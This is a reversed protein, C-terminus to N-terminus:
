HVFQSLVHLIKRLLASNSGRYLMEQIIKAAELCDIKILGFNNDRDILIGLGDLIDWPKAKFMSCNGLFWNFGIIWEKNRNRLIEWELKIDPCKTM